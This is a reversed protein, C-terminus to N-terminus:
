NDHQGGETREHMLYEEDEDIMGIMIQAFTPDLQTGKAKELENRVKEQEMVSRYSRSSTMADYADAVAIIRAEVPIDEGALGDPYGTGDYREHHWRAGIKLRPMEVIKELISAGKGPHIKIIEYEDDNLRGRKNIVRDPVGIKGVDHLLGMIYIEEQHKQDFGCRRAIERSYSAVRESHGNTYKDKADITEALAQILHLSLSEYDAHKKKVEAYLDRQLRVLQLTHQVRLVLVEAVFPKRIFDMAGLQLGRTEAEPTDSGTLFIVPIEQEPPMIERLRILTEFGDMEPMRIDLMILDPTNSSIFKLLASGSRLATVRMDRSSLIKGAQILNATDDDVIVIWDM